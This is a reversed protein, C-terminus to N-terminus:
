TLRSYTKGKDKLNERNEVLTHSYLFKRSQCSHSRSEATPASSWEQQMRVGVQFLSRRRSLSNKIASRNTRIWEIMSIIKTSRGQAMSTQIEKGHLRIDVVSSSVKPIEQSIEVSTRFTWLTTGDVESNVKGDNM